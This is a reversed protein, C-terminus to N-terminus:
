NPSEIQASLKKKDSLPAVYTKTIEREAESKKVQSASPAGTPRSGNLYMPLSDPDYLDWNIEQPPQSPLHSTCFGYPMSSPHGENKERGNNPTTRTRAGALEAIQTREANRRRETWM